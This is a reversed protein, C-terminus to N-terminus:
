KGAAYRAMLERYQRIIEDENQHGGDAVVSEGAIVVDRVADASMSLVVDSLLTAETAGAISLHNLDVAVFDAAAGGAIVGGDSGLSRAGNKTGIPWLVDVTSQVPGDHADVLVNRRGARLREHYEVLRLEAFPDVVTHSDSGVAIPIDRQMLARAPLFGDGLNRETSPCAGITPRIQQLIDLERQSLHTGHILTWSEGLVGWEYLAEIPPVGYANRSAQVEQPQECVHIHVPVEMARARDAIAEMWNRPVARISHPAVAVEVLPSDEFHDALRQVRELYTEVDRHIFRRQEPHAPEGIDGTHYAVPMLTIRLGVQQAAGAIRLALETPDDYESGDPRHHLYHFEGVHTIGCRIMELFVLRAIGEMEDATIRNALRYMETRWSWFDDRESDPAGYETKGRLARQFAHSHVNIQGPLLAADGLEVTRADITSIQEAESRRLVESIRGGCVVIAVNKEFQGDLLTWDARYVTKDERTM